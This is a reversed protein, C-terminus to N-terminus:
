EVSVGIMSVVIMSVVIMSVVFMSLVIMSPSHTHTHVDRELGWLMLGNQEIVAGDLVNSRKEGSGGILYHTSGCKPKRM